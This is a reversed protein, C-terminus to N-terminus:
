IPLKSILDMWNILFGLGIFSWVKAMSGVASVAIKFDVIELSFTVSDVLLLEESFSTQSLVLESNSTELESAGLITDWFLSFDLFFIWSGNLTALKIAKIREGKVKPKLKKSEKIKLTTLKDLILFLGSFYLPLISALIIKLIQKATDNININRIESTNSLSIGFILFITTLLSNLVYSLIVNRSEFM